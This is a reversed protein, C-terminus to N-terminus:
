KRKRSSKIEGQRLIEWEMDAKRSWLKAFNFGCSELLRHVNIAHILDHKFNKNSRSGTIQRIEKLSCSYILEDELNRCQPIVIVEVDTTMREIAVINERVTHPTGTDTDFIFVVCTGPILSFMLSQPFRRQSINLVKIRGPPLLHFDQILSRVIVEECQGEVFYITKRDKM